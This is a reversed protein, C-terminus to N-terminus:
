RSWGEVLARREGETTGGWVGPLVDYERGDLIARYDWDMAWHLCMPRSLCRECIKKAAATDGFFKAHLAQIESVDHTKPKCAAHARWAIESADM